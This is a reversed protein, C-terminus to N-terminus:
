TGSGEGPEARLDFIIQPLDDLVDLDHPFADGEWRELVQMLRPLAAPNKVGAEALHKRLRGRGKFIADLGNGGTGLIRIAESPVGVCVDVCVRARDYDSRNMTVFGHPNAAGTVFRREWEPWPEPTHEPKDFVALRRTDEVLDAAQDEKADKLTKLAIDRAEKMPIRKSM